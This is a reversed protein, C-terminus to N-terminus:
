FANLFRLTMHSTLCSELPQPYKGTDTSSDVIVNNIHVTYYVAKEVKWTVCNKSGGGARPKATGSEINVLLPTFGTAALM